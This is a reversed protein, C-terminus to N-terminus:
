QNSPEFLKKKSNVFERNIPMLAKCLLSFEKFQGMSEFCQPSINYDRIKEEWYNDMDAEGSIITMGILSIIKNSYTFYDKEEEILQANALDFATLFSKRASLKENKHAKIIGDVLFTFTKSVFSIDSDDQILAEQIYKSAEELRSELLYILAMYTNRRQLLLNHNKNTLDLAIKFKERANEYKNYILEIKAYDEYLYSKILLANLEEIMKCSENFFKVSNDYDGLFGNACAIGGRAKCQDRPYSIMEAIRLSEEMKEKLKKFQGIDRYALGLNYIYTGQNRIDGIDKFIELASGYSNFSKSYKGLNRYGNGLYGFTLAQIERFERDNELEKHPIEELIENYIKIAEKYKGQNARVNAHEIQVRYFYYLADKWRIKRINRRHRFNIRPNCVSKIFDLFIIRRRNEKIDRYKILNDEANKFQKESASTNHQNRFVRGLFFSAIGEWYTNKIKRARNSIEKACREVDPYKDFDLYIKAPILNKVFKKEKKLIPIRKKIWSELSPIKFTNSEIDTDIGFSQNLYYILNSINTDVRLIHVSDNEQSIERLIQNVKDNDDPIEDKSHSIELIKIKGGNNSVHNIWIISQLGTLLKLTPVIDFDDSGSYGMIILNRDKSINDFLPKKFKEIMFLDAGSKNSGLAQITTILSERKKEGTIINKTSGHIKYLTKKGEKALKIPNAHKEFESKSIVVEINRKNIGSKKLAYEILFDFNTTMVFNDEKIMEALFYHQANPEKFLGFYDIVKLDLDLSDRFVEILAEFRLNEIEKITSTEQNVCIYEIITDMIERTRPVNTPSDLSCGAGVLFTLNKPPSFLKLVEAYESNLETM